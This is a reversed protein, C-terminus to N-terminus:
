KQEESFYSITKQLGEDLSVKPEWKLMQKALTVNPCRQKPDDSPMPKYVLPSQSKTKSIVRTAIELISKEDPNGLNVPGIFSEPTEMLALLADILDSVYCFSRTQNGKGNITIPCNKLGQVIFNSIVRGDDMRMNPGYTNFIRGVKIKVGYMRHYDFFLTEACRKGEDYCARIGIPNVNGWYSESQPHVLCDGYVESTSAQFVKANYKKALELVNIAGFVSTKLTKIPDAQYHIPSAPCALNYIEEVEFDFPETVDQIVLTFNPNTLLDRLNEKRGTFLNDLCIVKHGQSLLKKCLHSGLFGAGGTVLIRKQKGTELASWVSTSSVFLVILVVSFINFMKKM